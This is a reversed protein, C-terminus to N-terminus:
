FATYGLETLIDLPVANLKALINKRIKIDLFRRNLTTKV